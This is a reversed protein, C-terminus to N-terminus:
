SVTRRHNELPQGSQHERVFHRRLREIAQRKISRVTPPSIRLRRAIEPADLGAQFSLELIERQRDTLLGLPVALPEVAADFDTDPAPETEDLGTTEMRRRRLHDIATTRAIMGLWTTLSSRTEDFRDLYNNRLIKLATEQFVEEVDDQDFDKGVSIFFAGICSRMFRAYRIFVTSPSIHQRQFNLITTNSNM